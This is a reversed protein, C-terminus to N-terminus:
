NNSPDWILTPIRDAPVWEVHGDAFAINCGRVQRRNHRLVVDEPGGTKNWGPSCEFLLVTQAPRRMGALKTVNRNMAYDCLGEPAGPCEFVKSSVNYQVLLETWSDQSPLAGDNDLSYLTMALALTKMNSQCVSTQAVGRVTVLAPLLIAAMLTALMLSVVPIVMGAIALGVGRAQGRSRGIRVLAILGCIFAPLATVFCTVLGLLALVLSAIALGSTRTQGPAGAADPALAAGCSDCIMAADPNFCGCKPCHM